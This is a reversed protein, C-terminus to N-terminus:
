IRITSVLFDKFLLLLACVCVCEGKADAINCVIADDGMYYINLESELLQDYDDDSKKNM